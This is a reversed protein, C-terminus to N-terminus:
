VSLGAFGVSGQEAQDLSWIEEGTRGDLLRLVGTKCSSVPEGGCSCCTANSNGSVFVVNPPDNADLQGDCNADYIRAVTPTAWVDTKEPFPADLGWQWEIQATLEGAEPMVECPEVCNPPDNPSGTCVIPLDVCKGTPPLDLTCILGAPPIGPGPSPEGLGLECYQSGECDAATTCESGPIVCEDFLCVEGGGCCSDGCASEVACCGGAICLGDSCDNNSLCEPGTETETETETSSSEDDSGSEDGTSEDTGSEDVGDGIEDDSRGAEGCALAGLLTMPITLTCLRTTRPM